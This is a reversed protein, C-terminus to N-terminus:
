SSRASSRASFALTSGPMSGWELLGDTIKPDFVLRVHFSPDPLVDVAYSGEIDILLKGTPLTTGPVLEPGITIDDLTGIVDSDPDNPNEHLPYHFDGAEDQEAMRHRADDGLLDFLGPATAFALDLGDDLFNRADAPDGREAVFGDPEPGDKLALDVYVGFAAPRGNAASHILTEARQVSQGNAVGFPVTRDIVAKVQATVAVVDIGLIPALDVLLGGLEVLTISLQHNRQFGRDDTDATLAITLRLDVRQDNFADGSVHDVIDVILGVVLNVQDTADPVLTTAFSGDIPAPLVAAPEAEYSDPPHITISADLNASRDVAHLELPLRGADIQALLAYRLYRESFLVEVDFGSTVLAQEVM